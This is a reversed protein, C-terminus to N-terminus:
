LGSFDVDEFLMSPVRLSSYPYPDNGVAALRNWFEKANGSINMENVSQVVEGKEILQGVIGFSFDGTTSNSNGGIFGTVLIGKDLHKILEKLSESGQQFVLNGWSGSTPELGLKRGYYNDVFYQRLVGKEILTRKKAVLGEGDFYRSGLGKELFPDDIVTFKESAIKKDLMGELFSQKQQLAYATMPQQLMGLLRSGARNEVIMAYRGSEIKNQGIKRLAREVAWEGLTSAPPLDSRHRTSAYYWDEPRGKEGDRVTVEAGASFRTGQIEGSFGNSHVQVVSTYVDYYGSTTSIIQDSRAMAAAEIEAAMAVRDSSKVKNYNPDNIRLDKLPEDPYYKPDPLSRHEDRTLYRTSSIAEEIFRSLSAKKLDSTSHSSYKQQVYLDLSLNMRTSEKVKELKSDRFEIEVQRSNSISAAAQDAGSRRAHKIVWEALKLQESKRM